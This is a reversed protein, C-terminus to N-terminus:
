PGADIAGHAAATYFADIDAAARVCVEMLQRTGIKHGTTREIGHAAARLSGSAVEHVVARQLPRSYLQVPLSLVADAVHLNAAAPARYAIRSVEVRGVTTALWRRHGREARTRTRGDAGTM